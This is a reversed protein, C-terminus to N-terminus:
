IRTLVKLPPPTIFLRFLNDPREEPPKRSNSSAGQAQQNRADLGGDGEEAHGSPFLLQQRLSGIPMYPKQPLFFMQDMQHFLVMLLALPLIHLIYDADSQMAYNYLLVFVAM